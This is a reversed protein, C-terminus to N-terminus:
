RAVRILVGLRPSDLYHLESEGLRRSERMPSFYRQGDHTTGALWLDTDVQLSRSLSLQLTGQLESAPAAPQASDVPEGIRLAPPAAIQEGGELYVPIAPAGDDLPQRWRQHFLVRYKGSQTMRQGMDTLTLADTGAQWAGNRIGDITAEHLAPHAQDPLRPGDTVGLAVADAAYDPYPLERSSEGPTTSTHAIIMVEVQYWGAFAQASLCLALVALALRRLPTARFNM